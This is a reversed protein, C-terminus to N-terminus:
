LCLPSHVTFHRQQKNQVLLQEPFLLVINTGILAPKKIYNATIHLTCSALFYCMIKQNNSKPLKNNQQTLVQSRNQIHILNIYHYYDHPYGYSTM